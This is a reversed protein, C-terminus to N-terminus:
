SDAVFERIVDSLPGPMTYQPYHGCPSFEVRRVDQLGAELEKECWHPVITDRDGGIMLVPHAIKPLLPRLDLKDIILTRRAAARAPTVGSCTLLYEFIEPDCGAFAPGDLRRMWTERIPLDAMRCSWYRGLRATGRELRKLPRRAFGGKLVCRRFRIPHKALSRLAITTGFSSGILDVQPLALHDLLALLDAVYHPHKYMGLNAGDDRGNALEYAICRFGSEVLRAMVMAFSRAQDAMGHVFVLPLRASPEGWTVYRLRYRPTHVVGRTVEADYRAVAHVLEAATAFPTTM